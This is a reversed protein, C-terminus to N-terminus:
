PGGVPIGPLAPPLLHHCAAFKATLRPSRSESRSIGARGLDFVPRGQSDLIPDPWNPVGHHRMCGSFKLMGILVLRAEAPPFRDGTGPPLLRLCANVGAQYRVSSVGLQQADPFKTNTAGAQPDPFNPVGHARMCRSFGLLQSTASVGANTAGPGSSSPSAGLAAVPVVLSAAAIIAAATRM